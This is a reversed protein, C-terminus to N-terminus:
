KARLITTARCGANIWCWSEGVRGLQGFYLGALLYAQAHIIDNGGFNNGLIDSAYAFYALGPYRDVNRFTERKEPIGYRESSSDRSGIGARMPDYNPSPANHPRGYTHPPSPRVPPSGQYSHYVPTPPNIEEDDQLIFKDSELIKGLALVLLILANTMSREPKIRRPRDGMWHGGTDPTGPDSLHEGSGSPRKRKLSSGGHLEAGRIPVEPVAFNPSRVIGSHINIFRTVKDNLWQVDVFPHMLWMHKMYSGYLRLVTDKDLKLTSDANLGGINERPQDSPLFDSLCLGDEPSNASVPESRSTDSYSPSTAQFDSNSVTEHNNAYSLGYPRLTGNREDEVQVYEKSSVGARDFFPKILPWDMLHHAGTEHDQPAQNPFDSEREEDAAVIDEEKLVVRPHADKVHTHMNPIVGSGSQGNAYHQGSPPYVSARQPDPPVYAAHTLTHLVQRVMEELNQVRSATEEIRSATEELRQATTDTKDLVERMTRDTRFFTLLYVIALSSRQNSQLHSRAISASLGRTRAIVVLGHKMVNRSENAATTALRTSRTLV